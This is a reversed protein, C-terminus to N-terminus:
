LLLKKNYSWDRIMQTRPMQKKPETQNKQKETPQKSTTTPTPKRIKPQHNIKSINIILLNTHFLVQCAVQM